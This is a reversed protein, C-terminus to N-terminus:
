KLYLDLSLISYIFLHQKLLPLTSAFPLMGPTQAAPGPRRATQGDRHSPPPAVCAELLPQNPDAVLTWDTTLYCVLYPSILIKKELLNYEDM